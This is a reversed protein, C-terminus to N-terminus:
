GKTMKPLTQFIKVQTHLLNSSTMNLIHNAITNKLSFKVTIKRTVIDRGNTNEFVLAHNYIILYVFIWHNSKAKWIISNLDDQSIDTSNDTGFQENIYSDELPTDNTYKCFRIRHLVQTKNTKLKRVLYNENLFGKKVVYRGFWKFELFLINLGQHDTKPQMLLLLRKRAITLSKSKQRLLNTDSTHDCSM